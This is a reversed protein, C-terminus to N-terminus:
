SREVTHKTSQVKTSSAYLSALAPANKKKLIAHYSIDSKHQKETVFNEKTCFENKEDQVFIFLGPVFYLTRSQVQQSTQQQLTKCRSHVPHSLVSSVNFRQLTSLM